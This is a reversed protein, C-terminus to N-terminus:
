KNSLNYRDVAASIIDQAFLSNEWGSVKVWKNKELDKYREFFHEIKKVLIEPFDSIDNIDKFFPDCSDTPVTLIKEDSGKEDETMLVGIPKCPVVCGPIVPYNSYLLVDAPDGDGSLTHPIFGYNCPYHMSASMFRDVFIAGTDKDFEYKVPDANMPIEIVVNVEKPCKSGATLNHYLM